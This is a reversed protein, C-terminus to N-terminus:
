DYMKIYKEGLETADHEYWAAYYNGNILGLKRRLNFWHYRLFSPIYVLFIALPGLMANQISHGFEHRMTVGTAHPSILSVLGLNLGGWPKKGVRFFYCGGYKFPRKGSLILVMAVVGGIATMIIGWTCNFILHMVKFQKKENM